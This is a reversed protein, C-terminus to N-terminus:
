RFLRGQKTKSPKTYRSGLPTPIDESTDGLILWYGWQKLSNGIRTISSDAWNREFDENLYRGLSVGSKGPNNKLFSKVKKLTKDNSAAIWLM